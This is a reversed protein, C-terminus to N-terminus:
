PLRGTQLMEFGDALVEDFRKKRKRKPPHDIRELDKQRCRHQDYPDTPYIKGTSDKLLQIAEIRKNTGRGCVPCLYLYSM